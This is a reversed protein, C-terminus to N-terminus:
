VQFTTSLQYKISFSFYIFSRFKSINVSNQNSVISDSIKYYSNVMNFIVKALGLINTIINVLKFYM